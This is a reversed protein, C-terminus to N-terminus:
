LGTKLTNTASWRTGLDCCYTSSIQDCDLTGCLRRFAQM